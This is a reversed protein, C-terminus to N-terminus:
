APTFPDRPLDPPKGRIVVTGAERCVLAILSVGRRYEKVRPSALAAALRKGEGASLWSLFRNLAAPPMALDTGAAGWTWGRRRSLARAIRVLPDIRAFYHSLLLPRLPLGEWLRALRGRDYRRYHGHTEDHRSWLAMDAPVTVLFIAGPRAAAALESFLYFDDAVHELVDTLLFLNARTCWDGLDAPAQGCLFRVEPFRERALAVAEASPDIGLCEFRSSLAAINAGTGCGVDVVVPRGGADGPRELVATALRLVIRRRAVFWWHRDELDANLRYHEPRM